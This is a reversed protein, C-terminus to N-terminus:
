TKLELHDMWFERVRDDLDRRKKSTADEFGFYEVWTPPDDLDQIERFYAALDQDTPLEPDQTDGDAPQDDTTDAAQSM